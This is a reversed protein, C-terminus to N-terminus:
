LLSITWNPKTAVLTAWETSSSGDNSETSTEFALNVADKSLIITKATTNNSLCNIIRCISDKSLRKSSAFNLGSNGIEGEVGFHTLKQCGSFPNTYTMNSTLVIKNITRLKECQVFTSTLAKASSADFCDIMLLEECGHFTYVFSGTCQSFDINKIEEIQSNMFMRDASVPTIKHKPNFSNNTFNTNSFAYDYNTRKGKNLIADWLTDYASTDLREIEGALDSIKYGEAKTKAVVADVIDKIYQETYLKQGDVVTEITYFIDDGDEYVEIDPVIEGGDSKFCGEQVRLVVINTNM